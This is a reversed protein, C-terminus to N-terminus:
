QPIGVPVLKAGIVSPYYEYTDGICPGQLVVRGTSPAPKPYWDILTLTLDRFTILTFESGINIEEGTTENVLKWNPDM